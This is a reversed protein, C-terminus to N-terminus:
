LWLDVEAVLFALVCADPEPRAVESVVNTNLLVGKM